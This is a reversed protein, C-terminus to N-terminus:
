KAAALRRKQEVSHMVVGAAGLILAVSLAIILAKPMQKAGEDGLSDLLLYWAGVALLFAGAVWATLLFLNRGSIKVVPERM